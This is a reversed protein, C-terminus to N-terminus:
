LKMVLFLLLTSITLTGIIYNTNERLLLIDNDKKLGQQITKPATNNPTYIFNGSFDYKQNNNLYSYRNDFVLFNNSFDYPNYNISSM